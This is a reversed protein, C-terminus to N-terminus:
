KEDNKEGKTKDVEHFSIIITIRCHNIIKIKIYCDIEWIKKIFIWVPHERNPNDDELPGKHLDKEELKKIAEIEEEISINFLDRFEDNKFRPVMQFQDDGMTKLLAILDAITLKDPDM